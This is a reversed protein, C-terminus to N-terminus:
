PSERLAYGFGRVTQIIRPEGGAELKRRLYVIYVELSNSSAGADFGWVRDHIVERTLVRKPNDLFLELLLLETRTLEIDRGGRTVTLADPDYALDGFRVPGAGTGGEAGGDATRRLLARLRALLEDLAFPKALYDDAGADLGAVRDTVADRATLMLAPTRDGDQRLRRAVALGDMGPMSVDLVIADSPTSAVESLAALGDAALGVEYGNIRLARDLADRVAREDDVVVLIRNMAGTDGM